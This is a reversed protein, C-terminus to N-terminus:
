AKEGMSENKKENYKKEKKKEEKTEEHKNRKIVTDHSMLTSLQIVVDTKSIRIYAFGIESLRFATSIKCM